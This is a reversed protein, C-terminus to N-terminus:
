YAYLKGYPRLWLPFLKVFKHDLIVEADCGFHGAFKSVYRRLTELDGDDLEAWRHLGGGSGVVRWIGDAFGLGPGIGVM